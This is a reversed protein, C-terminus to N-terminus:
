GAKARKCCRWSLVLFAIASLATVALFAWHTRSPNEVTLLVGVLAGSVALFVEFFVRFVNSTWLHDARVLPVNIQAPATINPQVKINAM